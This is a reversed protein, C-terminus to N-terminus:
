HSLGRKQLKNIYNMVILAYLQILLEQKNEKKDFLVYKNKDFIALAPLSM